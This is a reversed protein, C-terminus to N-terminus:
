SPIIFVQTGVDVHDFLWEADPVQMRICGHSASYGISTPEDTGHIGVGPTSLGMWRTGLPNGPGPPVPKLGKAWDDQVPPYWTPNKWKVVIEFHGLPTPYIPQGTAVPFRRVLRGEDYLSLRNTSRQVVIVPGISAVTMTPKLTTMPVAIPSRTGHVLQDAVLAATATVKIRRGPIAKTVIPKQAHLLLRADVPERDYRHALSTAYQTVLSRDISARLGLVTGAPVTLAKAVAADAPVSLAFQSTSVSTKATGIRLVVPRSFATLVAQVADPQAMGGIAIGGLTVGDPVVAPPAEATTTTAPPPTDASAAAACAGLVAAAILLLLSFGVHKKMTRGM